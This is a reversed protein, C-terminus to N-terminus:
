SSKGIGSQEYEDIVFAFVAFSKDPYIVMFIVSFLKIYKEYVHM